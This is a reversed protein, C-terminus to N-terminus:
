IPQRHHKQQQICHLYLLERRLYDHVSIQAYCNCSFLLQFHPSQYTTNFKNKWGNISIFEQMTLCQNHVNWTCINHQNQKVHFCCWDCEHIVCKVSYRCEFKRNNSYESIEIRKYNITQNFQFKRATKLKENM